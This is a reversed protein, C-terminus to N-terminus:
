QLRLKPSKLTVLIFYLTTVFIFTSQTQKTSKFRWLIPIQSAFDVNLTWRLLVARSLNLDVFCHVFIGRFTLIGMLYSPLIWINVVVYHYDRELTPLMEQMKAADYM